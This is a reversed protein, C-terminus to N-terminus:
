PKLVEELIGTYYKKPLFITPVEDTYGMGRLISISMLDGADETIFFVTRSYHPSIVVLTNPSVGCGTAELLDDNLEIHEILPCDYNVVLLQLVEKLSDIHLM